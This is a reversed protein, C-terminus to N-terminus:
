CSSAHRAPGRAYRYADRLRRCQDTSMAGNYFDFRLYGVGGREEYAIERFTTPRARPAHLPRPMEPVALRHGALALARM